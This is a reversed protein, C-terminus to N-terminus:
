AKHNLLGTKIEIVDMMSIPTFKGYKHLQEYNIVCAEDSRRFVKGKIQYFNKAEGITFTILVSEGENLLPMIEKGHALGIRLSQEAFDALVCGFPSQDIGFILEAAITSQVRQKRRKDALMLTAFDPTVLVTSIGAFPGNPLKQRRVVKTDLTPVGRVKTQIYLTLANGPTFQGDRGLEARTFYDLNKELNSTDPLLLQFDTVGALALTPARGLRFGIPLGNGDNAIDDVSYIFKNNIRYGIIFTQFNIARIYEPYYNVQQGIPFHEVLFLM